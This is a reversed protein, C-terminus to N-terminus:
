RAENIKTGVDLQLQEYASGQNVAIEVLGVSNQYWFPVGPPLDSFTTAGHLQVNGVRLVRDCSLSTAKIGSMLNGYCDVYIVQYLERGAAQGLHLPVSRLM